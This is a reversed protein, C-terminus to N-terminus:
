LMNYKTLIKRSLNRIQKAFLMAIGQFLVLVLGYNISLNYLIIVVFFVLTLITFIVSPYYGEEVIKGRDKKDIEWIHDSTCFKEFLTEPLRIHLNEKEKRDIPPICLYQCVGRQMYTLYLAMLVLKTTRNLEM